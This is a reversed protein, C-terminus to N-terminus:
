AATVLLAQLARVRQQRETEAAANEAATAAAAAAQAAAAKESETLSPKKPAAPAHAFASLDWTARATAGADAREPAIEDCLGVDIAEQPTFWTEQAMMASFEASTKNGKTAYGEALQGDIKELLDATEILDESNGVAWTWACHIMLMAQPAMIINSCALPLLSAASAAYGDIHAIVNGKYERIRQAMAIGAFVDGGPSNIRLHVDGTMSDLARSFASLSIGGFWAADMDSSVLVDYLEIVNAEAKFTGRNANASFLNLLRRHNM